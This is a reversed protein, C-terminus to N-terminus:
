ITQLFSMDDIYLTKAAVPASFTLYFEIVGDTVPTFNLQLLEWTGTQNTSAVRLGTTMGAVQGPKAKFYCYAEEAVYVYVKAVLEVGGRVAVTTYKWQVRDEQMIKKLYVQWSKGGATRVVANSTKAWAHNWYIRNDSAVGDVASFYLANNYPPLSSQVQYYVDGATELDDLSFDISVNHFKSGWLMWQNSSNATYFPYQTGQTISGGVMEMLPLRNSNGKYIYPRKLNCNILTLHGVLVFNFYDAADNRGINCNELTASSAIGPLALTPTGAPYFYLDSDKISCYQINLNTVGNITLNRHAFALSLSEDV